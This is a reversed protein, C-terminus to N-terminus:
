FQCGPARRNRDILESVHKGFCPNSVHCRAPGSIYSDWADAVVGDEEERRKKGLNVRRGARRERGLARGSVGRERVTTSTRGKQRERLVRVAPSLCCPRAQWCSTM